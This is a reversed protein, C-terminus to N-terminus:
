NQLFPEIVRARGHRCERNHDRAGRPAFNTVATACDNVARGGTGGDAARRVFKTLRPPRFDRRASAGGTWVIMHARVPIPWVVRWASDGM